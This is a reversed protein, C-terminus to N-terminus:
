SFSHPNSSVDQELAKGRCWSHTWLFNFTTLNAVSCWLYIERMDDNQQSCIGTLVGIRILQGWGLFKTQFTTWDSLLFKEDLHDGRSRQVNTIQITWYKWPNPTWMEGSFFFVFCFFPLSQSIELLNRNREFFELSWCRHSSSALLLVPCFPFNYLLATGDSGPGVAHPVRSCVHDM